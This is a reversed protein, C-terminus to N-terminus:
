PVRLMEYPEDPKFWVLMATAKSTGDLQFEVRVGDDEVRFATPGRPLLYFRGRRPAEVELRGDIVRVTAVFDDKRYRGVLAARQGDTLDTGPEVPPSSPGDILAPDARPPGM